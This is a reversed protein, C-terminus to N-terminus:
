PKPQDLSGVAAVKEYVTTSSLWMELYQGGNFELAKGAGPMQESLTASARQLSYPAGKILFRQVFVTVKGEKVSGSGTMEAGQDLVVGGAQSVPELLSGRFTFSGDPQRSISVIRIWLRAGAELRLLPPHDAPTSVSAGANAPLSQASGRAPAAAHGAARGMLARRSPATPTAKAGPLVRDNPSLDPPTYNQAIQSTSEGTRSSSSSPPEIEPQAKGVQETSKQSVAPAANKKIEAATKPHREAPKRTGPGADPSQATPVPASNEIQLPAQRIAVQVPTSALWERKAVLLGAVVLAAFATAGLAWQLKWPFATKAVDSWRLVRAPEAAPKPSEAARSLLFSRMGNDLRKEANVWEADQVPISAKAFQGLREYIEQCKPCRTLHAAIADRLFPSVRDETFASLSESDPCPEIQAGDERRLQPMLRELFNDETWPKM